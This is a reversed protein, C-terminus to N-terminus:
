LNEKTLKGIEWHIQKFSFHLYAVRKEGKNLICCKLSYGFIARNVIGLRQNNSYIPLVIICISYPHIPITYERSRDSKELVTRKPILETLQEIQFHNNTQQRLDYMKSCIIRYEMFCKEKYYHVGAAISLALFCAAAVGIALTAVQNEMHNTKKQNHINTKYISYNSSFTLVHKEM